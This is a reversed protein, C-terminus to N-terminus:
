WFLSNRQRLLIIGKIHASMEGIDKEGCRACTDYPVFPKPNKRGKAMGM